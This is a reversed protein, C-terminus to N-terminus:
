IYQAKKAASDWFNDKWKRNNEYCYRELSEKDKCNQAACEKCWADHYRQAVWDKNQYFDGLPLVRNCKVCLKSPVQMKGM